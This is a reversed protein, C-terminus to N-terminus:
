IGDAGLAARAQRLTFHRWSSPMHSGTSSVMVALLYLPLRAPEVLNGLGLLAMKLLFAWGAGQGLSLCGWTVSTALLLLGSAVTLVIPVLLTERTGGFPIGGLVLGMSVVHVSRLGVEVARQWGPRARQPAVVPLSRAKEERCAQPEM